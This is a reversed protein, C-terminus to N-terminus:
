ACSALCIINHMGAGKKGCVNGLSCSVNSGFFSTRDATWRGNHMTECHAPVHMPMAACLCVVKPKRVGYVLLRQPQKSMRPLVVKGYGSSSLGGIVSAGFCSASQIAGADDRAREEM